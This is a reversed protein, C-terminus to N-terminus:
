FTVDVESASRTIGSLVQGSATRAQVIQGAAASTLARAEVSVRFGRGRSVLTITQGQRILLPASLMDARLPEGSALALRMLKGIAQDPDSLVGAPLHGLDGERLLLDGSQLALGQALPRASVLYRVKVQITVPVYITWPSPAACRVGVSSRGWPRAGPAPFAELAPCEALSLNPDIRGIEFHAAGPLGRTERALYSSVAARISGLDQRPNAAAHALAPATVFLLYLSLHRIM